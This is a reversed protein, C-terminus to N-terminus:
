VKESYKVLKKYFPDTTFKSNKLNRNIAEFIEEFETEITKISSNPNLNKQPVIYSNNSKDFILNKFIIRKALEIQNLSPKELRDAKAMLKQYDDKNHARHNIGFEGFSPRGTTICPIGLATAELSVTGRCTIVASTIDLISKTNIRDQILYVDDYIGLDKMLQKYIQINEKYFGASPHPKLAWSCNKNMKVLKLTEVLWDYYSNYLMNGNFKNADSFAHAFIVVIPLDSKASLKRLPNKEEVIEKTGFATQVDHHNIKGQFRKKLYFDVQELWNNPFNEYFDEIQYQYDGKFSDKYNYLKYMVNPSVVWTPINKKLAIRSMVGGISAYTRHSVIVFKPKNEKFVKIQMRFLYQARILELFLSFLKREPKIFRNKSRIFKDFILDGMHINKITYNEIFNEFSRGRLIFKTLDLLSMAISSILAIPNLYSKRISVNLHKKIGFFEFLNISSELPSARIAIPQLNKNEQQIKAILGLQLTQKPLTRHEILFCGDYMAKNKFVALDM